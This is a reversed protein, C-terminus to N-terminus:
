HSLDIYLLGHIITNKSINKALIVFVLVHWYFIISQQPMVSNLVDSTKNRHHRSTATTGQGNMIKGCQSLIVGWEAENCLSMAITKTASQFGFNGM